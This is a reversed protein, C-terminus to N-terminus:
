SSQGIISSSASSASSYFHTIAPCAGRVFGSGRTQEGRDRVLGVIALILATGLAQLVACTSYGFQDAGTNNLSNREGKKAQSVTGLTEQGKRKGDPAFEAIETVEHGDGFALAKGPYHFVKTAGM